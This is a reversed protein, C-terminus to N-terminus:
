SLKRRLWGLIGPREVPAVAIPQGFPHMELALPSGDHKTASVSLRGAADLAVVLDAETSDLAEEDAALHVRAVAEIEEDGEFLILTERPDFRHPVSAPCTTGARLLAHRENDGGVVGLPLALREYLPLPAGDAIARAIRAGGLAATREPDLAVFDDGFVEMMRAAVEPSRMQGGVGLVADVHVAGALADRCVDDVEDLIPAALEAVRGRDLDLELNFSADDSALPHELAVHTSTETSLAVKAREAAYVLRSWTQDRAELPHKVAREVEKALRDAIARDIDIGGLDARCVSREVHYAGNGVRVLAVDLHSAGFDVVLLGLPRDARGETHAVAVALPTSVIREVHLGALEAAVTLAERQRAGYGTPCLVVARNPKGDLALQACTRAEKLLLAAIEELGIRHPGLAVAVEGDPGDTLEYPLRPALQRALRSGSTRGILRKTGHIGRQNRLKRLAPEGVITKGDDSIVVAAPIGDQGRRTSVIQPADDFHASRVFGAGVDIALVHRGKPMLTPRSRKSPIATDSVAEEGFMPRVEGTRVREPERRVLEIRALPTVEGPERGSAPEDTWARLPEVEVPPPSSSSAPSPAEGVLDAVLDLTNIPPSSRSVEPASTLLEDPVARVLPQSTSASASECPVFDESLVQGVDIEETVVRKPSVDVTLAADAAAVRALVEGLLSRSAEEWTLSLATGAERPDAVAGEGALAVVGSVFLLELRVPVGADLGRLKPVFAGDLRLNRGFLAALSAGDTAKLRVRLCKRTPPSM